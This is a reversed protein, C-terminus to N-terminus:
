FSAAPRRVRAKRLNFPALSPHLLGSSPACAHAFALQREIRDQGVSHLLYQATLSLCKPSLATACRCTPNHDLSKM